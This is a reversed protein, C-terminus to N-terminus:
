RRRQEYDIRIRVWEGVMSRGGRRPPRVKFQWAAALVARAINSGEPGEGVAVCDEVRYDEVTRCAITAWGPGRATSLYGRLESDYPERYWAAAYLPEGNPATGVRETDGSSGASPAPPGYPAARAAPAAAPRAIDASAMEERSLEIFPPPPPAVNLVPPPAVRAIEPLPPPPATDAPPTEAREPEAAAPEPEAPAPAEAEPAVDFTAMSSDEVRTLTPAITLLALVLLAEFALALVIGAARRGFRERLRDSWREEPMATSPSLASAVEFSVPTVRGLVRLAAACTGIHRAAGNFRAANVVTRMMENAVRDDDRWLKAGM